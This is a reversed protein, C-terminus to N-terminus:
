RKAEKERANGKRDKMLLQDAQINKNELKMVWRRVGDREREKGRRKEGRERTSIRAGGGGGNPRINAPTTVPRPSPAQRVGLPQSPGARDLGLGLGCLPVSTACIADRRNQCWHCVERFLFSLQAYIPVCKKSCKWAVNVYCAKRSVSRRSVGARRRWRRLLMASAGRAPLRTM